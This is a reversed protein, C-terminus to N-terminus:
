LRGPRTLRALPLEVRDVCSSPSPRQREGLTGEPCWV